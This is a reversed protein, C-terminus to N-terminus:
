SRERNAQLQVPRSGIASAKELPINLAGGAFKPHEGVTM